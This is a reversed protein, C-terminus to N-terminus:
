WRKCDIEVVWTWHREQVERRNIARSRYRARGTHRCIALAAITIRFNGMLRKVIDSGSSTVTQSPLYGSMLGGGASLTNSEGYLFYRRLVKDTPIFSFCCSAWELRKEKASCCHRKHSLSWATYVFMALIWPVPWDVDEFTASPLQSWTNKM